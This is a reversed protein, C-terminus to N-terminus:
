TLRDIEVHVAVVDLRSVAAVVDTVRRRVRNALAAVDEGYVARLHVTAVCTRREVRVAVRGIADVGVVDRAARAVLARVVVDAVWLEGLEDRWRAHWADGFPLRDHGRAAPRDRRAEARVRHMVRRVFDPPVEIGEDALAAVGDWARVLDARATQCWRCHRQHATPARRDAVRDILEGIDTGCPLRRTGDGASTTM